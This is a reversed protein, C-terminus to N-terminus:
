ARAYREEGRIWCSHRERGGTVRWHVSHRLVLIPKGRRRAEDFEDETASVWSERRAGYRPGVLLLLADSRRRTRAAGAHM